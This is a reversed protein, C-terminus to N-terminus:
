PIISRDPIEGNLEEELLKQLTAKALRYDDSTHSRSITKPKVPRKDTLERPYSVYEANTDFSSSSMIKNGTFLSLKGNNIVPHSSLKMITVNKFKSKQKDTGISCNEEVFGYNIGMDKFLESYASVQTDNGRDMYKWKRHLLNGGSTIKKGSIFWDIMKSRIQSICDIRFCLFEEVRSSPIFLFCNPMRNTSSTYIKLDNVDEDSVFRTSLISNNDLAHEIIEEFHDISSCYKNMDLFLIGEYKDTDFEKLIKLINLDKIHAFIYNNVPLNMLTHMLPISPDEKIERVIEVDYNLYHIMDKPNPEKGISHYYVQIKRSLNM